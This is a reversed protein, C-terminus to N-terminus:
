TGLAGLAFYPQNLRNQVFRRMRADPQLRWSDKRKQNVPCVVTDYIQLTGSVVTSRDTPVGTRQFSSLVHLCLGDLILPHPRKRVDLWGHSSRGM